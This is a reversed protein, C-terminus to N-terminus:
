VIRHQFCLFANRITHKPNKIAIDTDASDAAKDVPEVKAIKKAM